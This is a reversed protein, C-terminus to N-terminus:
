INVVECSGGSCAIEGSLDTNDDNEVIGSLDITKLKDYMRKFTVEDISEFPAQKYTGGDYPLVSLGNFADKHKWMWEMVDDWEDDKISVTASVNNTNSGSVHGSKVWETNFSSVRELLSLATENDRIIAGDPAAQPIEIVATNPIADYDVVLEPNNTSLYKYLAEDKTCQMRRIYFKSHWSHIGSSTGVVCSTTGSPKITTQRAAPKIGIIDSVEKNEERVVGAAETLDYNLVNGNCIGTIGVGILADKETNSQWITRLYHFNTFGAQLTGFFSAVRARNNFDEQSEINGANIETLNCFQFPRLAIECCPNCGWDKDNSFYVGPEGCGSDKIRTWIENFFKKTVRHRLIVASNNARGRQPNKEWWAGAKASLMLEDDASFLSILAARRIGGALVADAIHCVIDHVEIPTLNSGDEKRELLLEINFLCRKLPEPGPAKGGATVLRSGKPRIDSFDFLPKTKRVGFYSAMLHRVSDAWGEISDGVLYKQSKLPKRIEPLQDVHHNQVSFGVGTGGLLLFMTESFARYDDIPLYACNYVRSENKIIAAGSFQAARMSMLVKKDRVMKMNERISAGLMPYKYTMMEEYRDCIEDWRERRNEHPLFKAYKNFVVIDSLIQNNKEM